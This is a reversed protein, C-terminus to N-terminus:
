ESVGGESWRKVIDDIEDHIMERASERDYGEFLLEDYKTHQHRIHAIVALDLRADEDKKTTRGVRQSGVEFAHQVLPMREEEPMGPYMEGLRAALRVL